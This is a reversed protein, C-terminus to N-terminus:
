IDSDLVEEIFVDIGRDKLEQNLLAVGEEAYGIIIDNYVKVFTDTTEKDVGWIDDAALIAAKLMIEAAASVYKQDREKNEQTAVALQKKLVQIEKNEIKKKVTLANLKSM